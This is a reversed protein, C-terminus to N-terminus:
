GQRDASHTPALPRLWNTTPSPLPRRHSLAPLQALAAMGPSCRDYPLPGCYWLLRETSTDFEPVFGLAM